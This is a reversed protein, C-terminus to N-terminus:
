LFSILSSPIGMNLKLWQINRGVYRNHQERQLCLASFFYNGFIGPLPVYYFSSFFRDLRLKCWYWEKEYKIKRTLWGQKWWTWVNIWFQRKNNLSRGRKSPIILEMWGYKGGEEEKLCKNELETKTWKIEEFSRLMNREYLDDSKFEIWIQQDGM